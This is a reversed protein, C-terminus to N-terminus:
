KVYLLLYFDLSSVLFKESFKDDQGSINQLIFKIKVKENEDYFTAEVMPLDSNNKTGYKKYIQMAYKSLVNKYIEKGKLSISLESSQTDFKIQPKNSDQSTTTEYSRISYLYDYGKISIPEAKNIVNYNYYNLEQNRYDLDKNTFGFVEEMNSIKFDKPLYKVDKLYHSRSFYAIIQSIEEKDKESITKIPKVIKNSVLMSNKVLLQEFRNNQSFKSISYCSWPGFVSLVAIISLTIPLIINKRNKIVTLYIMIGLVWLGLVIVFYRNETIGYAKVRIGISFFMMILLPIIIKTLWFIFSRVWKIEKSLPSIFFIVIACIVGYWLVLNAVMGIPWIFTILVKAFYIYLIITYAMILPIVIYLLLVKLFRQYESIAFEYSLLPIGALFFCPAFIGVIAIWIDFYIKEDIKVGLLKDITFLIASIGGFLILSYLATVFFRTLLRVVYLEFGERKYFYPIFIFTLYFALSLAIYRTISVLQFDKLLFFYYLLLVAFSSIYIVFKMIINIKETREFILKISLSIPVGLALTMIIRTLVDRTNSSFVQQNQFLVIAIIAATSAFAISIPFRRLSTYLDVILKKLLNLIKM